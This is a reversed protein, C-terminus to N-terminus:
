KLKLASCDAFQRVFRIGCQRIYHAERGATRNRDVEPRAVNECDGAVSFGDFDVDASLSM